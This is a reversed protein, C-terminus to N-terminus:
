RTQQPNRNHHPQSSAESNLTQNGAATQVLRPRALTLAKTLSKLMRITKLLPETKLDCLIVDSHIKNYLVCKSSTQASNKALTETSAKLLSARKL